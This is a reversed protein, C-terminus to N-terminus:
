IENHWWMMSPSIAFGGRYRFMEYALFKDSALYRNKKYGYFFIATVRYNNSMEYCVPWFFGDRKLTITVM